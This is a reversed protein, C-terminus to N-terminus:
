SVLYPRMMENDEHDLIHCHWTYLGAIDFRAKLRTIEGPLALVTDHSGTEWPEPPRAPGIFPQRGVVEFQVQHLHIPHGDETFNHLEWLETSGLAPTETLPDGWARPNATGDPNVTGLMAMVPADFAENEMENLSVQRTGTAAGLRRFSPLTLQDPRVSADPSTPAGVVFKLVQGTTRPDAFEFDVGPEGGGFPEDPGENVLFLETGPRIGTFDVIVDARKAVPLQLRTLPVPAPLFGGDAGILWMPLAASAPRREPDSAIKLLLLRTNCSNLIRFRYRRAEVDLVPWTRGNVVMTAGFSEPNWIPPVDSDPIYPGNAPYDGFFARSDPFFLSGDANFSRDQVIMPIERYRTGEADGPRPAPGPLVGAPLDSPGGRLLYFGALGSHVNIRTM